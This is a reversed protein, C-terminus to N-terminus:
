RFEELARGRNSVRLFEPIDIVEEEEPPPASGAGVSPELAAPAPEIRDACQPDGQDESADPSAQSALAQDAPTELIEGTEPDSTVFAAVDSTSALDIGIVEPEPIEATNRSQNGWTFFNPPLPHEDDERAFLELVPLPQGKPDRTMRNIVDRYYTPKASHEAARARYNSGVKDAGKPAPRGRGRKFLLLLEDQDWVLLGSGHDQEHQEDTKTWVLCTSYADFGWAQAVAWALPFKMRTRGLPTDVEMEHLAFMHARPVWLFLWADPLVRQAVPMAIIEDWTMTPYQNEYSRNSFGAKRRWPPDAYVVPFRRGVPALATADSLGRALDNSAQRYGERAEENVTKASLLLGKKEEPTSPVFQVIRRAKGDRGQREKLQPIEATAELDARVAAVTKDDVGLGAAIKRNSAEPEERLDDAILARKQESNLHRRDVNLRRAHQRKEAESLGYRVLRPWQSIGLEQCIQIRHHGDLINGLEDYEVPVQVGRAAIDAKLAEYEDASLPPMVQYPAESM